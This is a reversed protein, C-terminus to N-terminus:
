QQHVNIHDAQPQPRESVVPQTMEIPENANNHQEPTATALEDIVV